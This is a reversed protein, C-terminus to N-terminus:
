FTVCHPYDFRWHLNCMVLDKFVQVCEKMNELHEPEVEAYLAQEEQYFREYSEHIMAVGRDVAAQPQLNHHYM